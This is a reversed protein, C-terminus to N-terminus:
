AVQKLLYEQQSSSRLGSPQAVEGKLVDLMDKGM